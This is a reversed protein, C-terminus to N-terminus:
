AAARRGRVIAWRSALFNWAFLIVTGAPAAIPVPLGAVTVMLFLLVVVLPYNASMAVAYRAFTPLNRPMQFTIATHMLYGVTVVVVYSVAASAVYPIALFDLGIVIANHLGACTAGVFLYRTRTGFPISAIV